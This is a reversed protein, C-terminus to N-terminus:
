GDTAPKWASNVNVASRSNKPLTSQVILKKSKVFAITTHLVLKGHALTEVAADFIRDALSASDSTNINGLREAILSRLHKQRDADLVVPITQLSPDTAVLIDLAGYLAHSLRDRAGLRDLRKAFLWRHLISGTSRYHASIYDSVLGVAPRYTVVPLKSANLLEEPLSPVLPKPVARPSSSSMSPPPSPRRGAPSANQLKGFSSDTPAESVLTM